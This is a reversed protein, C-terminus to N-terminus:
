WLIRPTWLPSECANMELLKPITRRSLRLGLHWCHPMSAWYYSRHGRRLQGKSLLNKSRKTNTSSSNLVLFDFFIKKKEIIEVVDEVVMVLMFHRLLKGRRHPVLSSALLLRKRVGASVQPSLLHGLTTNEDDNALVAM